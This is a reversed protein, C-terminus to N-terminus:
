NELKEILIINGEMGWNSINGISLVTKDILRTDVIFELMCGNSLTFQNTENTHIDDKREAIIVDIVAGTDFYVRLKTELAGYFSGMAVCYCNDILRFGKENTKATQQLRWQTTTRDTITRYDMYSKFSHGQLIYGSAFQKASKEYIRLREVEARTDELEQELRTNESLACSLKYNLDVTENRKGKFSAFLMVIIFCIMLFLQWKLFNNKM